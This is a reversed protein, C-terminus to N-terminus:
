EIAVRAIARQGWEVRVVVERGAIRLVVRGAESRLGLGYVDVAPVDSVTAPRPRPRLRQNGLPNSM